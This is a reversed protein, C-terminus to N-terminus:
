RAALERSLWESFGGITEATKLDASAKLYLWAEDPSTKALKGVRTKHAFKGNNACAWRAARDCANNERSDAHARVQRVSIGLGGALGRLENVRAAKKTEPAQLQKILSECDTHLVAGFLTSQSSFRCSEIGLVIAFLEAEFPTLDHISCITKFVRNVIKVLSALACNGGDSVCGDTWIRAASHENQIGNDQHQEM